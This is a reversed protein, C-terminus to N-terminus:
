RVVEEVLDSGVEYRPADLPKAHVFSPKGALALRIAEQEVMIAAQRALVAKNEALNEAPALWGEKDVEAGIQNFAVGHLASLSRGASVVSDLANRAEHLGDRAGVIGHPEIRHVLDVLEARTKENREMLRVIAKIHDSAPKRAPQPTSAESGTLALTATLVVRWRVEAVMADGGREAAAEFLSDLGASYDDFAAVFALSSARDNDYAGNRRDRRCSMGDNSIAERVADRCAVRWREDGEGIIELAIPLIARLRIDKHVRDFNARRNYATRIAEAFGMMEDVSLGSDHLESTMEALWLPWHAECAADSPFRQHTLASLLCHTGTTPDGEGRRTLLNRAIVERLHDIDIIM